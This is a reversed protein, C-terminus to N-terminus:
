RRIADCKRNPTRIVDDIDILTTVNEVIRVVRKDSRTVDDVTELVVVFSPQLVVTIVRKDPRSLHV